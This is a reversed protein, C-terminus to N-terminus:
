WCRSYVVSEDSVYDEDDSVYADVILSSDLEESLLISKDINAPESNLNEFMFSSDATAGKDEEKKPFGLFSRAFESGRKTFEAQQQDMKEKVDNLFRNNFVMSAKQKLAAPEPSNFINSAKKRLAPAQPAQQFMTSVKKKLNKVENTFPLERETTQLQSQLELLEFRVLEAQNELEM